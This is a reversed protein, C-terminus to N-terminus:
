GLLGLTAGAGMRQPLANVGGDRGRESLMTGQGADLMREPRSNQNDGM